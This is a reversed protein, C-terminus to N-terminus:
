HKELVMQTKLSDSHILIGKEDLNKIIETRLATADKLGISEASLETVYETRGNAQLPWIEISISQGCFTGSYRIFRISGVVQADNIKGTGWGEKQWNKEELPMYDAIMQVADDHNLLGIDPKTQTKLEYENSFSLTMKSYGWDIEAPFQNNDSSFGDARASEFASEIDHNEVPYRKKYTIKYKSKGDKVRLRNIWGENLFEREATDLYAVTFSEYEDGTMFAERLSKKLFHDGDLVSDNDLLMKIEFAQETEETVNSKLENVADNGNSTTTCSVFLTMVATFLLFLVTAFSVFSKGKCDDTIGRNM